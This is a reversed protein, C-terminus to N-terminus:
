CPMRSCKLLAQISVFVIVSFVVSVCGVVWGGLWAVRGRLGGTLCSASHMVVHAVM